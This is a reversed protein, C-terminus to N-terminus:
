APKKKQDHHREEQKEKSFCLGGIITTLLHAKSEATCFDCSM